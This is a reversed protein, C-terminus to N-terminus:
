DVSKVQEYRVRHPIMKSASACLRLPLLPISCRSFGKDYILYDKSSCYRKRFKNIYDKMGFAPKGRQTEQALENVGRDFKLEAPSIIAMQGAMQKYLPIFRKRTIKQKNM